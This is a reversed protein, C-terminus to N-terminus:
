NGIRLLIACVEARTATKGPAFTGDEYGTILGQARAWEVSETAWGSIADADSFPNGIFVTGEGGSIILSGGSPTTPNSQSFRFLIASMQERTIGGDPTFAGDSGLVIGLGAAWAVYPAYYANADVDTFGGTQNPTVSAGALRGLMTVFMARTVTGSPNFKYDGVGQTIGREFAAAIYANAWHTEPVDVFRRSSPITGEATVTSVGDIFLSAGPSYVLLTAAAGEAVFYRNNVETVVDSAIVSGSTLNITEGASTRVVAVGDTLMFGTLEGLEASGGESLAYFKANPSYESGEANGTRAGIKTKLANVKGDIVSSLSSKLAPVYTGTIYSLPVM